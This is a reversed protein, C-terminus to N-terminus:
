SRAMTNWRRAYLVPRRTPWGGHAGGQRAAQPHRARRGALCKVHPSSGAQEIPPWKLPNEGLSSPPLQRCVRVWATRHRGRRLVGRAGRQRVPPDGIALSRGGNASFRTESYRSRRNAAREALKAPRPPESQENQGGKRAEPLRQIEDMLSQKLSIHAQPGLARARAPSIQAADAQENM